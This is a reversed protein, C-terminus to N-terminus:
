AVQKDREEVLGGPSDPLFPLHEDFLWFKGEGLDNPKLLDLVDGFPAVEAEPLAWKADKFTRHSSVFERVSKWLRMRAEDDGSTESYKRVL